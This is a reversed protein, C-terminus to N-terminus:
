KVEVVDDLAYVDEYGSDFLVVYPFRDSSYFSSVISLGLGANVAAALEPSGLNNELYSNKPTGNYAKIVGQGHGDHLVKTGIPLLTDM